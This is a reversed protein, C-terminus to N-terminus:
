EGEIDEVMLGETWVMILRDRRGGDIFFEDREIKAGM